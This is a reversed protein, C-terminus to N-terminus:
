TQYNILLASFSSSGDAPPASGTASYSRRVVFEVAFEAAVPSIAAPHRRRFQHGVLQQHQRDLIFQQISSPLRWPRWSSRSPCWRARRGTRRCAAPALAVAAGAAATGSADGAGGSRQRVRGPLRGATRHGSRQDAQREVSRRCDPQRDEIEPRRARANRAAAQLQEASGSQLSSNIDTLASSLAGQDSSSIAGSNVESQLEAQLQQLPSLYSSGSTASISTM